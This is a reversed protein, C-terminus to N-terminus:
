PRLVQVALERMANFVGERKGADLGETVSIAYHKVKDGLAGGIKCRHLGALGAAVPESLMASQMIAVARESWLEVILVSKVNQSWLARKRTEPGLQVLARCLDSESGEVKGAIFLVSEQGASEPARIAASKRLIRLALDINERGLSQLRVAPYGKQPMSDDLLPKLYRSKPAAGDFLSEAQRKDRLVQTQPHVGPEQVRAFLKREWNAAAAADALDLALTWYAELKDRTLFDAMGDDPSLMAIFVPGSKRLNRLVPPARLEEVLLQPRNELVCDADISKLAAAQGADKLSILLSEGAIAGPADPRYIEGSWILRLAAPSPRSLNGSALKQWGNGLRRAPLVDLELNCNRVAEGAGDEIKVTLDLARM